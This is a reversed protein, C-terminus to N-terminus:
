SEDMALLIEQVEAPALPLKSAVEAEFVEMNKDPHFAKFMDIAEPRLMKDILIKRDLRSARLIAPDLKDPHNTTVFMVRNERSVVGDIANLLGSQTIGSKKTETIADKISKASVDPKTDRDHTAQASDLDELLLYGDERVSSFAKQLETDSGLTSLNIVYIDKNLECALVFVLTSKGTGPPGYLMYSRRYPTGRSRYKERSGHFRNLDSLLDTKMEAPIFVTDMYRKRKRNALVFGDNTWLHVKLLSADENIDYVEQMLDRLLTQKRGLTYMRITQMRQPIVSLASLPEDSINRHIIVLKGKHKLLHWGQGPALGWKWEESAYDYWEVFNTSKAKKAYEHKALWTSLSFFIAEDSYIVITTVVLERLWRGAVPLLRKAEYALGGLLALFAGGVLLGNNSLQGQLLEWLDM